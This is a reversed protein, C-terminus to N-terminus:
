GRDEEDTYVGRLRGDQDLELRAPQAGRGVRDRMHLVTGALDLVERVARFEERDRLVFAALPRRDHDARVLHLADGQGLELRLEGDDLVVTALIDVEGSM